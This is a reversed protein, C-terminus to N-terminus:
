QGDPANHGPRWTLASLAVACFVAGTYFTFSAGLRGWLFGAIGSAALMAIGGVLNFFGFAAGRLDPPAANAVMTAMLGQTIGMHVGWLAM